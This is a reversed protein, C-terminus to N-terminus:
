KKKNRKYEMVKSMDGTKEAEARLRELTSDVSGSIKGTGTVTKEPAPPNKKNQVKLQTELKSIAFAFKIPDKIEALEKAKALNKGIAYVVVAPNDAGQVIIGQRTVDFMDLVVAEADDYDKVKLATKSTGYNALKEQWTRTAAEQEKAANTAMEEAKRKKDHWDTLASEFKDADYDFDELTPKNGLLEPKKESGSVQLELERIRKQAERHNKRLERVWDPAAATEEAPQEADGITVVVEDSQAEDINEDTVTETAGSDIQEEIVEDTPKEEAM